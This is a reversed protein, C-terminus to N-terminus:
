RMGGHMFGELDRREMLGRIEKPTEKVEFLQGSFMVIKTRLYETAVWRGQYRYQEEWMAEIRTSDIYVLVPDKPYHDEYSGLHRNLKLNM